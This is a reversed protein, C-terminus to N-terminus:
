DTAAADRKKALLSSAHSLLSFAKLSNIETAYDLCEGHLVRHRNLGSYNTEERRIENYAIPQPETLPSWLAIELLNLLNDGGEENELNLRDVEQKALSSIHGDGGPKGTFIHKGVTEACIGDAQAFFIPVSLAYEKRLHAEVAPKIAFERHPYENLIQSAHEEISTRYEQALLQELREIDQEASSAIADIESWAM